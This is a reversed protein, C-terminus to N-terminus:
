RSSVKQFAAKKALLDSAALQYEVSQKARLSPETAMNSMSLNRFREEAHYVALAHAELQEQNPQNM